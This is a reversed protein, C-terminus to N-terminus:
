YELFLSRLWCRSEPQRTRWAATKLIHLYINDKPSVITFRTPRWVLLYLLIGKTVRALIPNGSACILDKGPPLLSSYHPGLSCLSTTGQGRNNSLVETSELNITFRFGAEWASAVPCTFRVKEPLSPYTKSQLRKLIKPTTAQWTNDRQNNITASRHPRSICCGQGGYGPVWPAKRIHATHVM